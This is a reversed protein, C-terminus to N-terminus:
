GDCQMRGTTTSVTKMSGTTTWEHGNTRNEKDDTVVLGRTRIGCQRESEVNSSEHLWQTNHTSTMGSFVHFSM